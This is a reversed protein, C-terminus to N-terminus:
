SVVTNNEEEKIIGVYETVLYKSMGLSLSIELVNMGKRYLLRVRKFDKIYRDIAEGSHKTKREIEPRQYGQLFLKIIVKKHTLARGLDHITGRTPVTTENDRMYDRVIKSVTGSSINMLVAVDTSSLVVGQDYAENFLDIIRRNRIERLSYGALRDDIDQQSFLTLVIPQLPTNKGSHGYSAKFEVPVGSWNIQGMTIMFPDLYNSDVLKVLDKAFMDQVKKGVIFNYQSELLDIIQSHLGDSVKRSLMTPYNLHQGGSSQKGRVL